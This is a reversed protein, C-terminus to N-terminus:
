RRRHLSSPGHLQARLCSRERVTQVRGGRKAAAGAGQPLPPKPMAIIKQLNCMDTMIVGLRIQRKDVWEKLKDRLNNRSVDGNNGLRPIQLFQGNEKDYAGHGTFYFVVTDGSHIHLKDLSEYIAAPNCDMDKLVVPPLLSKKGIQEFTSVLSQLDEIVFKGIDKDLTDGVAILHVRAAEAKLSASSIVTILGLAVVAVVGQRIPGFM